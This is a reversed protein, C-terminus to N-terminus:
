QLIIHVSNCSFFLYCIGPPHVIGTCYYKVAAVTSLSWLFISETYCNIDLFHSLELKYCCIVELFTIQVNYCVGGRGGM